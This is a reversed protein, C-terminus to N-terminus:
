SRAYADHGLGKLPHMSDPADRAYPIELRRPPAAQRAHVLAPAFIVIAVKSARRSADHCAKALCLSRVRERRSRHSEERTELARGCARPTGRARGETTRGMGRENGRLIMRNGGPVFVSEIQMEGCTCACTTAACLKLTSHYSMTLHLTECSFVRQLHSFFATPRRRSRAASARGVGRAAGRVACAPVPSHSGASARGWPRLSSGVSGVRELRSSRFGRRECRWGGGTTCRSCM